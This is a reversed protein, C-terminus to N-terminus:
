WWTRLVVADSYRRRGGVRRWGLAGTLGVRDALERLL